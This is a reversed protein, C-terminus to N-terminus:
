EGSLSEPIFVTTVDVKNRMMGNALMFEVDRELDALDSANFRQTFHYWAFFREADELSIGLTKAGLAVAEQHNAKIWRWAADHAAVVKEVLDPRKKVFEGSATVALKPSILGSATALIRGGEREAKLVFAAALLAADVRGGELAAFSQPIDMQVFNVDALSLGEGALAAALLQHLVTGKPGAVTKGKLEKVSGPGGKKGLLAFTDTPRAVGAIIRVPNGEGNAMLVSAGNMVGCVDLDGSALAQTQRAGAIIETWNVAVGLPALERELLKHEKMVIMQLNFPAKVYSINLTEGSAVALFPRFLLLLFALPIIRKM